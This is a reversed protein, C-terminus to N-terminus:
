YTSCKFVSCSYVGTCIASCDPCDYGYCMKSDCLSSTAIVEEQPLKVIMMKPAEFKKM